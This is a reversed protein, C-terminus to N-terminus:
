NMGQVNKEYHLSYLHRGARPDIGIANALGADEETFDSSDSGRGCKGRGSSLAESSVDGGAGGEGRGWAM